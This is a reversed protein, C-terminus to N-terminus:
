RPFLRLGRLLRKIASKIGFKQSKFLDPYKSKLKQLINNVPSLASSADKEKIKEAIINVMDAIFNPLNRLDKLAIDDSMKWLIKVMEAIEDDESTEFRYSKKLLKFIANIHEECVAGPFLWFAIIQWVIIVRLHIDFIMDNESSVDLWYDFVKYIELRHLSFESRLLSTPSQFYHYYAGNVIVQRKCRKMRWLLFWTDEYIRVEQPFRLDSFINKHYLHPVSYGTDRVSGDLFGIFMEQWSNFIICDDEPLMLFKSEYNQRGDPFNRYLFCSAIDANHKELANLLVEYMNPEIWDDSDVFALYEGTAIDIGANKASALGGNQKHIAIIRSDKETYEDLIRGSNDPSGDDVGIIELNKHTQDCVSDLCKVLYPETKYIPIIVSIKPSM